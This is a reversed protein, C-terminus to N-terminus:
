LVMEVVLRMVMGGRLIAVDVLLQLLPLFSLAEKLVALSITVM